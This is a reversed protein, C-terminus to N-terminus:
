ENRLASLLPGRLALATALWTWLLGSAVVAVLTLALSLGPVGAGPSRLAPAVAVVAAVVGGLIGLGLLGWHEALVVWSLAWSRFGVARLLALESRRELVNRLVVIGLGVSGLLLGLGGLAQFISLYTNEVAGFDALRRAAPTLELGVDQLARSLTASVADARGPPADILFARYGDDSPFRETFSREAILLNGQLISGGIVGVLRVKFPRGRGDTYDLTDGVSISLGWTATPDDAVAAVVDEGLDRELLIWPKDAAAGQATKLFAFAGRSALEEPDIGLLRPKQARNLNLCSADDGEHVRLPVVSVGEMDEAELGCTERGKPSNLDEFLPLASEGFLAFGGTGSDRRRAQAHPDKRNAGVAVVLFSACALLGIVALSRGRRRAANRWGLSALSTRPKPSERSAAGLLGHCGALAGLLLLAGSGFFAMAAAQDRRPGMAVALGCVAVLAALAVWVGPQRVLGRSPGLSAADSQGTLLERAPRRAQKRLMVWMAAVAVAVGALGGLVLTLSRAHYRVAAKAVAGSWLTSLGLLVVRTYLTGAFAGVVGGGLALLGGECLLARRVQRPTFGVALLTGVEETRQEIGFVFLLGTLLLAAVILFFSLGLFLQGFDLAKGSAALAQARVPRLFLGVSAPDLERRLGEIVGAIGREAPYRVATLNGFRNDWMKQGAALSIFAKPTGRHEAWYDEDKKRIRKLDIPIGPTWDRCNDAEALGPFHPMLTRDARPSSLPEVARVRFASTREELRRMAGVVFYTLEVSSGVTAGLDDKLWSSIVIEPEAPDAATGEPTLPGSATVMSYPTAREGARIENVFYTLIGTAAPAARAAARAVQPDLFVHDSRLEIAGQERLERVELGADALQWAERLAANAAELDLPGDKGALLILNARGAQQAKGQLTGLPVFVNYPALQNAQLGFRGLAEDPVVAAVTPRMAASADEAVSLPADRSLLSPKELRVLVDDGPGVGLHAALREGLAVQGDGDALPDRPAGLAWFREDVGLVQVGNARASGDSNAAIGRLRLVPAARAGLRAALDAALRDRCLRGGLDAALDVDGLRELAIARLTYRVSDGVVLAGVLIATGVAAGVAVGAHTRRYHFLSRAILTATNV